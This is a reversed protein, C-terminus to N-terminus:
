RQVKSHMLGTSEDLARDRKPEPLNLVERLEDETKARAHQLDSLAIM